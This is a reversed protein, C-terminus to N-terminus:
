FILLKNGSNKNSSFGSLLIFYVKHLFPNICM